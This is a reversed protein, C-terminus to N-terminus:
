GLVRVGFYLGGFVLESVVAVFAWMLMRQKPTTAARADAKMQDDLSDFMAEQGGPVTIGQNAEPAKTRGSPQFCDRGGMAAM